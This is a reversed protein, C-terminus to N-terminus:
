CLKQGANTSGRDGFELVVNGVQVLLRVVAKTSRADELLSGVVNSPSPVPPTSCFLHVDSPGRKEGEEFSPM